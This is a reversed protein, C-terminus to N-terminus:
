PHNGTEKCWRAIEAILALPLPRDYPLQVAGKSTRYETLRPSFARIAGVGSYLGIHHRFAAFHILNHGDWYTPMRWSIREQADPLAARLADRVQRLLPQVGEPQAAIYGDITKPPDSRSPGQAQPGRKKETNEEM